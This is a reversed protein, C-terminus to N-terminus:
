RHCIWCDMLQDKKVGYETILRKGREVRAASPKWGPDNLIGREDPSLEHAPLQRAKAYLGFVDKEREGIFGEPERHCDLCWAMFFPKAKYTLQMRQVPGHCINCNIGRNVHISHDFYVFEPLKNIRAWGLAGTDDKIPSGTRYSDRVPALLPSNTWINSHCTMCTHTPPIGAYSSKEVSSHCYRCDIGLENVHHEHSFPVPQRLAENVRTAYSSRAIASGAAILVVPTVIALLLSAKALTNASSPFVQAM